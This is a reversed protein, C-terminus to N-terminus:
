QWLKLRDPRNLHVQNGQKKDAGQAQHLQTKRFNMIGTLALSDVKFNGGSLMVKIGCYVCHVDETSGDATIIDKAYLSGIIDLSDLLYSVIELSLCM